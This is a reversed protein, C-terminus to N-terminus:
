SIVCLLEGGLGASKAKYGNMVGSSTSLVAIGMGNKIKPIEDSKVYIRQGPKSVRKISLSPREELFSIKLEKFDGNKEVAYSEIFKDNKLVLCIQEKIKSYPVVVSEKMAMQANRIRTLMDAIPDTHTM